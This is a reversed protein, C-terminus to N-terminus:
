AGPKVIEEEVIIRRIKIRGDPLLIREETVGGNAAGLALGTGTGASTSDFVTVAGQSGSFFGPANPDIESNVVFAKPEYGDCAALLALAALPM